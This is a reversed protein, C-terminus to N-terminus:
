PISYKQFPIGAHGYQTLTNHVSLITQNVIRRIQRTFPSAPLSQHTRQYMDFKYYEVCELRERDINLDLFKLGRVIEETKNTLVDEFHIVIM